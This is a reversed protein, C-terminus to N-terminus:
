RLGENGVAAYFEGDQYLTWVEYAKSTVLIQLTLAYGMEIALDGTVVDFKVDSVTYGALVENAEAEADVPAPLGFQHGHDEDTVVISKKGILRWTYTNIAHREGLRITWSAENKNLRMPLGGLLAVLERGFAESRAQKRGFM